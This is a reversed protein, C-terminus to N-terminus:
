VCNNILIVARLQQTTSGALDDFVKFSVGGAGARVTKTQNEFM